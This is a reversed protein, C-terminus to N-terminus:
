NHTQFHLPITVQLRPGSFSRFTLHALARSLCKDLEADAIAPDFSVTGVRGSPEISMKANIQTPMAKADLHGLCRFIGSQGRSVTQQIEAGTLPKRSRPAPMVAAPAPAPPAAAPPAAVTPIPPEVDQAPPPSPQAALPATVAPPDPRTLMWGGAAALALAVGASAVLLAGRRAAPPSAVAVAPPPPSAVVAPADAPLNPLKHKAIGAFFDPHAALYASAQMSLDDSTLPAIAQGLAQNFLEARAFRVNPDKALGRLMAQEVALPLDPCIQRLSPIQCDLILRFTDAESQGKFLRRCALMEWMLIGVCFLDVRPDAEAGELQEPGIYGLKGKIMGPSTTSIENVAKAIGFDTIKVEGRATVLINQPTIDRHLISLPQGGPGILTHAHSLGRLTQMVIHVVVQWPMLAEDGALCDLITGITVGAVYEMAIYYEEGEKALDYIGVINAHNLLVTLKAEKVMMAIFGRDMSLHPLMKKIAVEKEFGEIGAIKGYFVEGMGGTAIRSVLVYKGLRTMKEREPGTVWSGADDPAALNPRQPRPSYSSLDPYQQGAGAAAARQLPGTCRDARDQRRRRPPLWGAGRGCSHRRGGPDGHRRRALYHHPGAGAWRLGRRPYEHNPASLAQGRSGYPTMQWIYSGVGLRGAKLSLTPAAHKQDVLPTDLNDTAFVRTRWSTAGDVKASRLAIAPIKQDFVVTTKGGDNDVVDGAQCSVCPPPAEPMVTLPWSVNPQSTLRWAYAGPETIRDVLLHGRATTEVMLPRSFDGNAALEVTQPQGRPAGDAAGTAQPGWTLDVAPPRGRSFVITPEAANVQVRPGDLPTIAPGEPTLTVREGPGVRQGAVDLSGSRVTVTPPIESADFDVDAERAGPSVRTPIQGVQVVQSAAVQRQAPIHLHAHGATLRWSGEARAESMRAGLLQFRSEPALSIAAGSGFVVTAASPSGATSLQDGAAMATASAAPRFTAGAKFRVQAASAQRLTVSDDLSAARLVSQGISQGGQGPVPGPAAPAGSSAAPLAPAGASPGAMSPGRAAVSSAAAAAPSAAVPPAPWSFDLGPSFINPDQSPRGPRSFTLGAITHALNIFLGDVQMSQGEGLRQLSNPRQLVAEGAVVTVGQSLSVEAVTMSPGLRVQGFYTDVVLPAGGALQEAQLDGKELRVGIDASVGGDKLILVETAASLRLRLGRKFTVGAGGAPATRVIDGVYLAEGARGMHPPPGGREVEVEGSLAALRAVSTDNRRRLGFVLATAVALVAM